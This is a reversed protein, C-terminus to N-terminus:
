RRHAEAESQDVAEDDIGITEGPVTLTFSYYVGPNKSSEVRITCVGYDVATLLGDSSVTAVKGDSSSWVFDLQTTGKPFAEISLKISEGKKLTFETIQEGGIYVYFHDIKVVPNDEVFCSTVTFLMTVMLAM